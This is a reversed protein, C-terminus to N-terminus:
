ELSIIFINEEHIINEPTAGEPSEQDGCREYLPKCGQTVSGNRVMFGWRPHCLIDM